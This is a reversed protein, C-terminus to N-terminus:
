FCRKSACYPGLPAKIVTCQWPLWKRFGSFHPEFLPQVINVIGAGRINAVVVGEMCM